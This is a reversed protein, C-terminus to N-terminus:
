KVTVYQGSVWGTGGTLLTIRFWGLQSELAVFSDLPHVRDIAQGNESPRDRVNLYELGDEKVTIIQPSEVLSEVQDYAGLVEPQVPATAIADPMVSLDTNLASPPTEPTAPAPSPADAQITPQSAETFQGVLKYIPLYVAVAVFMVGFWVSVLMVPELITVLNKTTVDSKEEYLASIKLLSDALTGSQESANILQQITVPVLQRVHPYSEMSKKFTNGEEVMLKIHKYLRRYVVFTTADEVSQLTQVIPLGAGLLSGTIYSFRALEIEVVIRSLGPLMLIIREGIIRTPKAFFVIYVGLILIAITIPIVFIGYVSLFQGLGIMFKTVLPLEINLQSFVTSLKPLVFWAILLGVLITVTFVLVPYIMASLLKSQFLRDKQQQVAIVRLNEPLRGSSEGIRILSVVQTPLIGTSEFATSLPQGADVDDKIRGIVKRMTSSRADTMLSELAVMVGTGSTILLSFNELFQDRESAVSM